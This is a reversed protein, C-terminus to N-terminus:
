WSTGVPVSEKIANKKEELTNIRYKALMQSLVTQM